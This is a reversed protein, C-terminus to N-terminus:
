RFIFRLPISILWGIAVWSSHVAVLRATMASGDEIVTGFYLHRKRYKELEAKDDVPEGALRSNLIQFQIWALQDRDEDQIVKYIEQCDRLVAFFVFAVGFTFKESTSFSSAILVGFFLSGALAPFWRVFSTFFWYHSKPAQSPKSESFLSVTLTAAYLLAPVGVLVLAGAIISLGSSEEGFFATVASSASIACLLAPVVGIWISQVWRSKDSFLEFIRHIAGLKEAVVIEAPEAQTENESTM